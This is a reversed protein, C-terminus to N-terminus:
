NLFIEDLCFFELPNGAQTSVQIMKAAVQEGSIPRYRKLWPLFCLVPLLWSGIKEGWRFHERHGILLSPQFISIRHFPLSKIVHELEGKMKLYAKNSTQNAGASSVLLYHKVGNNAAIEAANFQYDLDVKRQAEISGAQKLTTGLCSFLLDGKLLEAYLALNEFDVVENFVKPSAYSIPKRTLTIIKSVHTADILKEVLASGILGTAGIVIAVKSM